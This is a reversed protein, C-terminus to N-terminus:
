TQLVVKLLKFPMDLLHPMQFTVIRTEEVAMIVFASFVVLQEFIHWFDANQRNSCGFEALYTKLAKIIQHM